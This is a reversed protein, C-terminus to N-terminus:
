KLQQVSNLIAYFISFIKEQDMTGSMTKHIEIRDTKIKVAITITKIMPSIGGFDLGKPEKKEESHLREM